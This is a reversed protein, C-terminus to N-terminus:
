TYGAPAHLHHLFLRAASAKAMAIDSALKAAAVQEVRKQTGLAIRAARGIMEAKTRQVPTPPVGNVTWTGLFANVAAETISDLARLSDDPSAGLQHLLSGPATTHDAPDGTLEAWATVSQLDTFASATADDPEM